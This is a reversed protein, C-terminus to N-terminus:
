ASKRPAVSRMNRPATNRSWARRRWARPSSRRRAIRSSSTPAAPPPAFTFGGEVPTEAEFTFEHEFSAAITLGTEAALEDLARRYFTRTCCDWDETASRKSNCITATWREGSNAGIFGFRTGPDPIQRVEDMPGWPNDVISGFATLAQGACAWGLGTEEKNPLDSLRVGRTRTVGVLDSWLLYNLPERSM